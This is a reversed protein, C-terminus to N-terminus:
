RLARLRGHGFPHDQSILHPQSFGDLRPQDDQLAPSLAPAANQNAEIRVSYNVNADPLYEPRYNQNSSTQCHHKVSARLANLTRNDM